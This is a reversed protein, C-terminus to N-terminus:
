TSKDGSSPVTKGKVGTEYSINSPLTGKHYLWGLQSDNSLSCKRLIAPQSIPSLLNLRTSMEDPLYTIVKVYRLNWYKVQLLCSIGIHCAHQVHFPQILQDSSSQVCRSVILRLVASHVAPNGYLSCSWEVKHFILHNYKCGYM